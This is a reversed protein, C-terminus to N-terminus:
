EPVTGLRVEFGGRYDLRTVDGCYAEGAAAFDRQEFTGRDAVSFALEIESRGDNEWTVEIEASRAGTRTYSWIRAPGEFLGDARVARLTDVDEFVYHIVSGPPATCRTQTEGITATVTRGVLSAPAVM